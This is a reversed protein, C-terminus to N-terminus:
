YNEEMEGVRRGLPATTRAVQGGCEELSNVASVM